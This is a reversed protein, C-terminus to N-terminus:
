VYMHIGTGSKCSGPQVQSKFDLVESYLAIAAPYVQKNFSALAGEMLHDIRNQIAPDEEPLMQELLVEAEKLLKSDYDDGYKISQELDARAKLENGMMLHLRARELYARFSKPNLKLCNTLDEFAPEWNEVAIYALARDLYLLDGNPKLKIAESFHQISQAYEM